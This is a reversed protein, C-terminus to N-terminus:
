EPWGGMGYPAEGLVARLGAVEGVSRGGEEAAERTPRRQAGGDRSRWQPCPRGTLM